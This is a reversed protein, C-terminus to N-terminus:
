VRSLNGVFSSVAKSLVSAQMSLEQASVLVLSASQGTEDAAASVESITMTVENTRESARQVNQSIESTAASQEEVASAVMNSIEDIRYIVDIIERIATGAEQTATQIQAVQSSIDETASATKGALTKVENAVVAFGKGAEGARASEITANLALLNTQEAISSILSVVEGIRQAAAVLNGVMESTASAKSQAEASVKTSLVVQSSIESISASLEESASAVSAVNSSATEAAAAVVGAKESTIGSNREMSQATGQMQNAASTLTGIVSAIETEFAASLDLISRSRQLDLDMKAKQEDRLRLNELGSEKFVQLAEAMEGIEDRSGAYPIDAQLDGHALIGMVRTINKVPAVIKKRSTYVGSGVTLFALVASAVLLVVITKKKADVLENIGTFEAEIVASFEEMAGELYEFDKQFEDYGTTRAAENDFVEKSLRDASSIYKALPAQLQALREDVAPSLHMDDVEKILRKFNEAHEATAAIAEAKGEYKGEDALKIAYLVDARLGDHMMDAEVQNRLALTIRRSDNFVKELTYTLYVSMAGMALIVALFALNILTLRTSIKMSLGTNQNFPAETTLLFSAFFPPFEFVMSYADLTDTNQDETM